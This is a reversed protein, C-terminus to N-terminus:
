KNNMCSPARLSHSTYFPFLCLAAFCIHSFLRAFWVFSIRWRSAGAGIWGHETICFNLRLNHHHGREPVDDNTKCEIDTKMATHCKHKNHPTSNLQPPAALHSRWVGYKLPANGERWNKGEEKRKVGRGTNDRM